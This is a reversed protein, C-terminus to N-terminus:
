GCQRWTGDGRNGFVEGIRGDAADAADIPEDIGVSADAAFAGIDAVLHKKARELAAEMREDAQAPREKGGTAADADVPCRITLTIETRKQVADREPQTANQIRQ